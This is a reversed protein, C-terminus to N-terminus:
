EYESLMVKFYLALSLVKSYLLKFNDFYNKFFELSSTTFKTRLNKKGKQTKLTSFKATFVKGLKSTEIQFKLNM